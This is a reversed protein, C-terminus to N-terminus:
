KYDISFKKDRKKIGEFSQKSFEFVAVEEADKPINLISLDIEQMVPEDKWNGM